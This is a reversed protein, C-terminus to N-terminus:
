ADPRDLVGGSKIGEDLDEHDMGSQKQEKPYHIDAVDLMGMMKTLEDFRLRAM